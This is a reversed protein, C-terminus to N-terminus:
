FGGYVRDFVIVKINFDVCLVGICGRMKFSALVRFCKVRQATEGGGFVFRIMGEFVLRFNFSFGIFDLNLIQGDRLM